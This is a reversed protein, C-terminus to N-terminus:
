PVTVSFSVSDKSKLGTTTTAQLVYTYTMGSSTGTDTFRDNSSYFGWLSGNENYRKIYYQEVEYGIDASFRLAIANNKKVLASIITPAAVQVSEAATMEVIESKSSVKGAVDIVRVYYQYVAGDVLEKDRYSLSDSKYFNYSGTVSITKFLSFGAGSDRYIEYMYLGVDDTSYLNLSQYEEHASISEIVPPEEDMHVQIRKSQQDSINEELARISAYVLSDYGLGDHNITLKVTRTEQPALQLTDIDVSSSMGSETASNYASLTLNRPACAYSDTNAVFIDVTIEGGVSMAVKKSGTDMVPLANSLKLPSEYCIPGDITPTFLEVQANDPSISLVRVGLSQALDIFPKDLTAAGSHKTTSGVNAYHIAVNNKYSDYMTEDEGLGNRFSLYYNEETNLSTRPIKIMKALSSGYDAVSSLSYIGRDNENLNIISSSSAWGAYNMHPANFLKIAANNGMIDSGDAYIAINDGDNDNDSNAHGLGLNHGLEHAMVITEKPSFVWSRCESTTCAYNAVGGFGCNSAKPMFYMIHDKSSIRGLQQDALDAWDVYDCKGTVTTNLSVRKFDTSLDGQFSSKGNSAALYISRVSGQDGFMNQQLADLEVDAAVDQFDLAVFLVNRTGSFNSNGSTTDSEKGGNSNGNKIYAVELEEKNNIRKKNGRAEAQQGTRLGKLQSKDNFKLEIRKKSIKDKIFVRTNQKYNESEEEILVSLVGEVKTPVAQAYFPASFCVGFVTLFRLANHINKKTIM